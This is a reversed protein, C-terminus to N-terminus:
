KTIRPETEIGKVFDFANLMETLMFAHKQSDVKIRLLYSSLLYLKYIAVSECILGAFRSLIIGIRLIGVSLCGMMVFLWKKIQSDTAIMQIKCCNAPNLPQTTAKITTMQKSKLIQM